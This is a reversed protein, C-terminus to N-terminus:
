LLNIWSMEGSLESETIEGSKHEEESNETKLSCVTSVQTFLNGYTPSSQCAGSLM